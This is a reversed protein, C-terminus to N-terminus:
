RVGSDSDTDQGDSDSGDDDDRGTGAEGRTDREGDDVVHDRDDDRYLTTQDRVAAVLRDHVMSGPEVIVQQDPDYGAYDGNLWGPFALEVVYAGESFRVSDAYAALRFQPIDLTFAAADASRTTGQMTMVTSTTFVLSEWAGNPLSVPDGAIADVTENVGVAEWTGDTYNLTIEGLPYSAATLTIDDSQAVRVAVMSPNGISTSEDVSQPNCAGMSILAALFFVRAM